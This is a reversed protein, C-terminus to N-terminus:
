ALIFIAYIRFFIYKHWFIAYFFCLIKNDLCLVNKRWCLIPMFNAYFQCLIPMFNCKHWKQAMKIGLKIGFKIGIKHRIFFPFNSNKQCLIPMFSRCFNSFIAYFTCLDPLFYKKHWSHCLFLM